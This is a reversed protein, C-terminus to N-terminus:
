LSLKISELDFQIWKLPHLIINEVFNRKLLFLFTSLQLDPFLLVDVSYRILSLRFSNVRRFKINISDFDFWSYKFWCSAVNGIFSKKTKLNILPFKLNFRFQLTFITVIEDSEM